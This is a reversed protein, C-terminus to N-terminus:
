SAPNNCRPMEQLHRVHERAAREQDSYFRAKPFDHNAIAYVMQGIIIEIRKEADIMEHENCGKNVNTCAGAFWLRQPVGPPRMMRVDPLCRGRVSSDTTVKSIWETAAGIVVSLMEACAFQIFRLRGQARCDQAAKLYTDLMEAAFAIKYDTPYLRLLTEYAHKTSM